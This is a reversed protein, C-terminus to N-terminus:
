AGWRTLPAPGPSKRIWPRWGPDGAMLGFAHRMYHALSWM